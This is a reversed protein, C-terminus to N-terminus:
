YAGRGSLVAPVTRLLLWIDFWLSWGRIYELDLRMMAEFPLDSRGNVQWLGTLGPKVTTRQLQWPQYALVEPMLAPRPGVLSMEGRLVNFLQPLEDLSSKRLFRGFPTIRPDRRIKFIPGEVENLLAVEKLRDEADMFMSRFKYSTFLRGGKGVRPQRFLVPGSSTCRIVLAICLMPLAAPILVAVSILLDLGRKALGALGVEARAVAAPTALPQLTAPLGGAERIAV